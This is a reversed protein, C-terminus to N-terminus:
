KTAPENCGACRVNQNNDVSNDNGRTTSGANGWSNSTSPGSPGSSSGGGASGWSSGPNNITNNRNRNASDNSPARSPVPPARSQAPAPVRPANFNNRDNNINNSRITTTTSRGTDAIHGLQNQQRANATAPRNTKKVMNDAIDLVSRLAGDCVMCTNYLNDITNSSTLMALVNMQKFKIIFKKSGCRTCSNTDVKIEKIISPLWIVHNCGPHGLCGIFFGNNDKKTRLAMKFNDCKPCQFTEAIVHTSGPPPDRPAENFRNSFFDM